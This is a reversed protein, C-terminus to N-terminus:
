TSWCQTRLIFLCGVESGAFDTDFWGAFGSVTVNEDTSFSFPADAVGQSDAISCTHLDLHKVAAPKGVVQHRWAALYLLIMM